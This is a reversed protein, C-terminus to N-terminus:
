FSLNMMLLPTGNSYSPIFSLNTKSKKKWRYKHTSYAAEVSFIGIAAGALVDSGWHKNNAMRLLGVSSAISYGAISYYISKDGLEKHLFEALLFAEATHGSPFAAHSSGDPREVRTIKKLPQVIVNMIIESKILLLAQNLLDNKGKEGFLEAGFLISAPAFQLYDDASSNFHSLHKGRAEWFEENDLVENDTFAILSSGILISPVFLETRSFKKKAPKYSLTDTLQGVCTFPLILIILLYKAGTHVKM